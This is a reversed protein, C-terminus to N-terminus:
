QMLQYNVLEGFSDNLKRMATVTNIDFSDVLELENLLTLQRRKEKKMLEDQAIFIELSAIDDVYQINEKQQIFMDVTNLCIQSNEKVHNSNETTIYAILEDFACAADFGYSAIAGDFDNLNPFNETLGEILNKGNFEKNPSTLQFFIDEMLSEFFLVNGWEKIKSFLKYGPFIKECNLMCFLILHYNSLRIIAKNVKSDFDDM